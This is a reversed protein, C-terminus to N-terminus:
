FLLGSIRLIQAFVKPIGIIKFIFIEVNVLIINILKVLVLILRCYLWTYMRCLVSIFDIIILQRPYLFPFVIQSSNLHILLNSVILVYRPCILNLLWLIKILKLIRIDIFLLLTLHKLLRTDILNM